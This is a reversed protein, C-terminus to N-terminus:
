SLLIIKRKNSPGATATGSTPGTPKYATVVTTPLGTPGRTLPSASPVFNIPPSVRTPPNPNGVEVQTLAEQEYNACQKPFDLEIWQREIGKMETAGEPHDAPYFIKTPHGVPLPRYGWSDSIYYTIQPKDTPDIYGYCGYVVSDEAKNEHHFQGNPGEPKIDYGYNYSGLFHMVNYGILKYAENLAVKLIITTEIRINKGQRFNQNLYQTKNLDQINVVSVTGNQNVDNRESGVVKAISASSLTCLSVLGILWTM